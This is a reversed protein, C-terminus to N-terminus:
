PLTPVVREVEAELAGFASLKRLKSHDSILEAVRHRISPFNLKALRRGTLGSAACIADFLIRKPDTKSEIRNLSPLGLPAKGNPNGAAQRIAAEEVLLWAEMMRIPVICVAPVQMLLETKLEQLTDEIERKRRERPTNEADRHIFLLDCPYLEIAKLIKEKLGAPPKLLWRFDAWSGDLGNAAGHEALLWKIAPILAQDSSGDSVLTFRL